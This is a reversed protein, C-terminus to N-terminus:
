DNSQEVYIAIVRSPFLSDIVSLRFIIKKNNEAQM